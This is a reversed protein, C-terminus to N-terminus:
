GWPQLRRAWAALAFTMLVAPPCVTACVGAPAATRGRPVAPATGKARGTADSSAGAQTSEKLGYTTPEIGVGTMADHKTDHVRDPVCAM